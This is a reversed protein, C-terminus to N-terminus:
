GGADTRRRPFNTWAYDGFHLIAAQDYARAGEEPDDFLGVFQRQGRVRIRVMWREHRGSWNVGRFGSTNDRRLGTNSQNEANTAPRLNRKRNDLTNRNVHDVYVDPAVGLVERHMLVLGGGPPDSVKRRRVAYGDRQTRWKHPLIREADEADIIAVKGGFLPVLISDSQM